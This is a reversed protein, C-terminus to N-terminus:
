SGVHKMMYLLSHTQLYISLCNNMCWTNTWYLVRTELINCIAFWPVLSRGNCTKSLTLHVCVYGWTSLDKAHKLGIVDMDCHLLRVITGVALAWGRLTRSHEHIYIHFNKYVVYHNKLIWNSSAVLPMFNLSFFLFLAHLHDQITSCWRQQSLKLEREEM